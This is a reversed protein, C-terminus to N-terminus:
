HKHKLDLHADADQEAATLNSINMRTTQTVPAPAATVAGGQTNRFPVSLVIQEVLTRAGYNNAALKQVIRQVTCADGDQLSRGLAFGMVKESVHRVFDEKHALLANRLEVPGNFKEGSPLEGSANVPKGDADNDRWRGM